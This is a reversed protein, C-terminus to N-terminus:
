DGADLPRTAAELWAAAEDPLEPRLANLVQAHYDDLWAQEEETLLTRDILRRDIPARTLTEFGLMPRETGPLDLAIVAVLNEIRIGYAGAKYYGPENSVIMGPQLAVANPLKSIRQPGEHVGLYSGVGHGTGHDYDLGAQWLHYRALADLQAGSTGKPFRCRAIAIHGKLVRTFRERMEDTPQGIAITRTIDTTGDPYQAGSDVLYLSGALLGRNSEPTARYHVIAGNPGAGSITDFSLDRFMAHEARIAALQREASLEDLAGEGAAGELWYLFRAMAAGDRRHAARTGALEAANKCAKPLQCPDAGRVVRTGGAALQEFVWAASGAPDALVAAGDHGLARLAPGFAEPAHLAVGNGLHERVEPSLKRPDVFWDASGDSRLLAFSLALPTHAVDGGRINLLWAISDSATLVAAALDKAALDKALRHRKDASSEGAFQLPQPVVPALPPPPQDLWIADLPNAEVAVLEGGVAKAAQRYREAADETSLWPDFGLRGGVPLNAEIWAAPPSETIHHLQYLDGALQGKAQLTYRGDTFFAARDLLVVVLAASGGFGTLWAIRKARAPVYENQFEDAMPVIFGDLQRRELERRLASLREAAPSLGTPDNM